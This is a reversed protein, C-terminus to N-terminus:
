LIFLIEIAFDVYSYVIYEYIIDSQLYSDIHHLGQVLCQTIDFLISRMLQCDWHFKSKSQAVSWPVGMSYQARSYALMNSQSQWVTLTASQTHTRTRTRIHTHTRTRTYCPGSIEDWDNRNVHIASSCKCHWANVIWNCRYIEIRIRCTFLLHVLGCCCCCCCWQCCCCCCCCTTQLVLVFSCFSEQISLRSPNPKHVKISILYSM